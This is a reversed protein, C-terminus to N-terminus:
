GGNQRAKNHQKMLFKDNYAKNAVEFLRLGLIRQTEDMEYFDGPDSATKGVRAIWLREVREGHIEEYFEAYAAAQAFQEDYPYGDYWPNSTKTDIYELTGNMDSAFLDGTGGCQYKESVMSLESSLVKRGAMGWLWDLYRTAPAKAQEYLKPDLGEPSLETGALSAEIMKHAITGVDAATDRKTIAFLHPKGEKTVPLTNALERATWARESEIGMGMFRLIGAREETGYWNLLAPKDYVRLVSTVGPVTEGAKNKYTQHPRRLDLKVLTAM